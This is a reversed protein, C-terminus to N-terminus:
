RETAAESGAQDQPGPPAARKLPIRKLRAAAERLLARRLAFPNQRSTARHKPSPIADGHVVPSRGWFQRLIRRLTNM